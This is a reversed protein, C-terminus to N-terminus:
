QFTPGPTYISLDAWSAPWLAENGGSEVSSTVEGTGLGGLFGGDPYNGFHGNSALLSSFTGVGGDLLLPQDPEASSVSQPAPSM